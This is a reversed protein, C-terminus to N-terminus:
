QANMEPFQKQLAQTVAEADGPQSLIHPTILVLLETRSTTENRSRFLSGLYPIDQLLPVGTNTVNQNQSILGGLVVTGGNPATLDTQLTRKSITPSTNVGTTTTSANSVEQKIQMDVEGQGRIIPTVNLIVGTDVYQVTQLLGTTGGIITNSTQQSTIVPVSDGVNIFAQRGNIAMIRPTSLIRARSNTALAHILARTAGSNNLVTFNIGTNGAVGLGGLTAGNLLYDGLKAQALAWEVGTEQSKGLTVEAITVEILVQKEPQDLAQLLRRLQQFNQASGRYIISNTAVNVVMNKGIVSSQPTQNKSNGTNAATNANSSSGNPGGMLNNTGGSQNSSLSLGGPQSQSTSGGTTEGFFQGVTQALSYANANEVRYVYLGEEGTQQSPSDIQKLWNIAHNLLGSNATLVIVSGSEPVPVINIVSPAGSNGGVNAAYGESDLIEKLRKAAAEPPIYALQVRRGQTGRQSAQDLLKITDLANAVQARQGYLIVANDQTQPVVMLKQGMISNLTGYVNNATTYKLPVYQFIPRLDIPTDPQSQNRLFVPTIDKVQNSPLVRYLDGEQVLSLNYSQLIAQTTSLLEATTVPSSARLTVLDRRTAVSPDVYLNLKLLDGLMYQIFGPLPMQDFNITYQAKGNKKDAVKTVQHTGQGAGGLSPVAFVQTKPAANTSDQLTQNQLQTGDTKAQIPQPLHMPTVISCGNLGLLAMLVAPIFLAGQLSLQTSATQKQNM